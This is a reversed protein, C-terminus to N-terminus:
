VCDYVGANRLAGGVELNREGTYMNHCAICSM